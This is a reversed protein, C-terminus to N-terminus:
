ITCGTPSVPTSPRSGHSTRLATRLGKRAEALEKAVEAVQAESHIARLRRLLEEDSLGEPPAPVVELLLHIHNSM